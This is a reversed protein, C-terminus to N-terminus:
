GVAQRRRLSQAFAALARIPEHYRPAQLEQLYQDRLRDADEAPVELVELLREFTSWAMTKSGHVQNHLHSAHALGCATALKSYSLPSQRIKEELVQM